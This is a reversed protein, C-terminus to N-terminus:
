ETEDNILTKETPNEELEDDITEKSERNKKKEKKRKKMLELASGTLVVGFNFFFRSTFHPINIQKNNKHIHHEPLDSYM